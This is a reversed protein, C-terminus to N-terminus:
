QGCAAAAPLALLVAPVHTAQQYLLCPHGAVGALLALLVRWGYPRPRHGPRSGALVM